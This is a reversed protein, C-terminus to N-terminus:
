CKIYVSIRSSTGLSTQPEPPRDITPHMEGVLNYALRTSLMSSKARYRDMIKHRSIRTRTNARHFLLQTVSGNDLAGAVSKSMPPGPAVIRLSRVGLGSLRSACRWQGYRADVGYSRPCPYPAGLIPAHRKPIPGCHPLIGGFRWRGAVRTNMKVLSKSSADLKFNPHTGVIDWCFLSERSRLGLRSPSRRSRDEPPHASHWVITCVVSRSYVLAKLHYCQPKGTVLSSDYKLATAADNVTDDALKKAAPLDEHIQVQYVVAWFQGAKRHTRHIRKPLPSVM